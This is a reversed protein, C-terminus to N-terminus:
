GILGRENLYRRAVRDAVEGDVTIRGNLGRLTSADLGAFVRAMFRGLPWAVAAVLTFFVAVLLYYRASM